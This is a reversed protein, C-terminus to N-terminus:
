KKNQQNMMVQIMFNDIKQFMKDVSNDVSERLDRIDIRSQAGNAEIKHSLDSLRNEFEDKRVIELIFKEFDTHRLYGNGNLSQRREPFFRRGIWGGVVEGLGSKVFGWVGMAM